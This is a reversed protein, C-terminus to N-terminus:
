FDLNIKVSTWVDFKVKIINVCSYLNPMKFCSSLRKLHNKDTDHPENRSESVIFDISYIVIFNQM